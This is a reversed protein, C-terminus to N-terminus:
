APVAEAPSNVAHCAVGNVFAAGLAPLEAPTGWLAAGTGPAPTGYAAGLAARSIDVERSAAGAIGAGLTDLIHIKARHRVEAPIDGPRLATLFGAIRESATPDNTM